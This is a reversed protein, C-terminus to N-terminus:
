APNGVNRDAAPEGPAQLITADLPAVLLTDSDVPESWELQGGQRPHYQRSTCLYAPPCIKVNGRSAVFEAVMSDVEAPTLRLRMQGRRRQTLNQMYLEHEPAVDVATSPAVPRIGKPM